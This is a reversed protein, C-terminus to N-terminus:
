QPVPHREPKPVQLPEGGIEEDEEDAMGPGDDVERDDVSTGVGVGVGVVLGLELRVDLEILGVGVTGILM